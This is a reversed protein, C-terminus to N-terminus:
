HRLRRRDYSCLKDRCKDHKTKDEGGRIIIEANDYACLTSKVFESDDGLTIRVDNHIYVTSDYFHVHEGLIITSDFGSFVFKVKGSYAGIIKNGHLDEYYDSTQQVVCDTFYYYDKDKEYGWMILEDKLSQYFALPVIVYYDKSKGALTNVPFVQYNDIKELSSDVYFATELGYREKLTERIAESVSYKGWLVIKRKGYHEHTKEVIDDIWNKKM